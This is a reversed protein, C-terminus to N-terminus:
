LQEEKYCQAVPCRAWSVKADAPIITKSFPVNEKESSIMGKVHQEETFILKAIGEFCKKLHPQM